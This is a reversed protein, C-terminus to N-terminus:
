LHVNNDIEEIPLQSFYHDFQQLAQLENKQLIINPWFNFM